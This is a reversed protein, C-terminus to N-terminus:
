DNSGDEMREAEEAIIKFFYKIKADVETLLEKTTMRCKKCIFDVDREEIIGDWRGFLRSRGDKVIIILDDIDNGAMMLSLLIGDLSM